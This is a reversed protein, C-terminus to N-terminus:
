KFYCECCLLQKEVSSCHFGVVDRIGVIYGIFIREDTDFEVRASYEKNNM